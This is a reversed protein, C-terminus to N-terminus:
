CFCYKRKAKRCTPLLSAPTQWLADDPELLEENTPLAIKSPASLQLIRLLKHQTEQVEELPIDQSFAVRKFLEQFQKCLRERETSAPPTSLTGDPTSPSNPTLSDPYPKYSVNEPPPEPVTSTSPAPSRPVSVPLPKTSSTQPHTTPPHPWPYWQSWPMPYSFGPATWPLAFYPFQPQHSLVMAQSPLPDPPPPSAPPSFEAQQQLDSESDIFTALEPPSHPQEFLSGQTDLLPSNLEPPVSLDCETLFQQEQERPQASGPSHELANAVSLPLTLPAAPRNSTSQLPDAAPAPPLSPASM